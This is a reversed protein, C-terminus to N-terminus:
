ELFVCPDLGFEALRPWSAADCLEPYHRVNVHGNLDQWETPITREMLVPLDDVQAVTPMSVPM